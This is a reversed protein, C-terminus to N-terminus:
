VSSVAVDAPPQYASETSGSRPPGAIPYVLGSGTRSALGNRPDVVIRGHELVLDYHEGTDPADDPTWTRVLGHRFLEHQEVVRLIDAYAAGRGPFFGRFVRDGARFAEAADDFGVLREIM